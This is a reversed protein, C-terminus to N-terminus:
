KIFLVPLRDREVIRFGRKQPTQFRICIENAEYFITEFCACLYEQFSGSNVVIMCTLLVTLCRRNECQTILM